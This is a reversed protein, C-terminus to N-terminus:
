LLGCRSVQDAIDSHPNTIVSTWFTLLDNFNFQFLTWGASVLTFTISIQLVRPLADWQRASIHYGIVIAAHFLGWVIFTWGAGHWLGCVAFVILINRIYVQNGGLPM